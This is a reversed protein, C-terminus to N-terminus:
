CGVEYHLMCKETINIYHKGSKKGVKRLYVDMSLLIFLDNRVLFSKTM